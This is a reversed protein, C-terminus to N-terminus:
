LSGMEPWNFGRLPPEQTRKISRMQKLLVEQKKEKREKRRAREREKKKKSIFCHELSV